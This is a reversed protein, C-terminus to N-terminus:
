SKNTTALKRLSRTRISENYALLQKLVLRRPLNRLIFDMIKHVYYPTFSIDSALRGLSNRAVLAASPVTLSPRRVKSMNSVVLNPTSSQVWIGSSKYEASLAQSFVDVYAKTGSYIALMPTPVLGTM